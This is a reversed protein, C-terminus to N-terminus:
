KIRKLVVLNEVSTRKDKIKSAPNQKYQFLRRSVIKDVFTTEHKWGFKSLHEILIIDLPIKHGRTSSHGVFLFMYSNIDEQLRTFAGLIGWFYKDFVKIIHKETLKKRCEEYTKSYIKCPKINGYPIELKGLRKIEEESYGFWFLDLKAQKIYEQSQLYPPSTILIDKKERLSENLTDIGCRITHKTDKPNLSWYEKISKDLKNFENMLMKFFIIEWDSKLINAIKEQSRTSKSLKQRQTDDYSFYRTTKVLPIALFLKENSEPLSHYYGWVKHLFPLYEKPFWNQHKSWKPIFKEKCSKIKKIIEEQNIVIPKMLAVSHLLKLMPNLDWLEYDCGYISSAIGVTGCGGFPDFVKMKPKSYNQLIYYIVHPIFKAPYRYIGFTAYTTSPLDILDRFIVNKSKTEIKGINKTLLLNEM